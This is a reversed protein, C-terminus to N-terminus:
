PRAPPPLQSLYAALARLDPEAYGQLVQAMAPNSNGRGGSRILGLERLLYSEHQAAVMPYFLEARGQGQEGHCAACDRAYLAQGQPVLAAAGREIKGAVPLSQLYAAIDAMAQPTVQPELVIERMGPNLRLGSRIDVLQKIIVSAHQGSLRPIAGNPRGSADRRHCGQCDAYAQQGRQVDGPLALTAKLEGSTPLQVTIQASAPSAAALAIAVAAAAAATTALAQLRGAARPWPRHLRTHRTAPQFPRPSAAAPM